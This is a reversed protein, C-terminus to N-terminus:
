GVAQIAAIQRAISTNLYNFVFRAAEEPDGAVMVDLYQAHAGSLNRVHNVSAGLVVDRMFRFLAEQRNWERELFKNGAMMIVARHFRLDADRLRLSDNGEEASKMEEVIASLEGARAPTMRGAAEHAALSEMAARFGYVQELATLDPNLVSLGKRPGNSVLLGEDELTILAERVPNRSVGLSDALEVERVPEGPKLVGDLLMAQVAELM